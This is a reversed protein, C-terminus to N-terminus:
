LQFISLILLRKYFKHEETEMHKDQFDKILQQNLEDEKISLQHGWMMAGLISVIIGVCLGLFFM